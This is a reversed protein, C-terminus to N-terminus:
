GVTVGWENVIEFNFKKYFPYLREETLAYFLYGEYRSLLENIVKSASGQGEYKKLTAVAGLVARKDSLSVAFATSKGNCVFDAGAHRIRHSIDAYLLDTINIGYTCEVISLATRLNGKSGVPMKAASSKHRLIFGSSKLEYGLKLLVDKEAELSSFGVINLFCGLEEFDANEKACLTVNGGQKSIIATVKDSVQYWFECIDSLGYSKFLAKIRVDFPSDAYFSEFLKRNKSDVYKVM